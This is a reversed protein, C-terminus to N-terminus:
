SFFTLFFFSFRFRFALSMYKMLEHSFILFVFFLVRFAFFLFSVIGPADFVWYSGFTVFMIFLLVLYRYPDNPAPGTADTSQSRLKSDNSDNISSNLLPTTDSM